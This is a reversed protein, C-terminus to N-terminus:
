GKMFLVNNVEETVWIEDETIEIAMPFTLFGTGCGIDLIKMEPKIDVFKLISELHLDDRTQKEYLAGEKFSEEFGKRTLDISRKNVNM